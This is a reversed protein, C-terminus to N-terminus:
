DWEGAQHEYKLEELEEDTEKEHERELDDYYRDVSPNDPYM